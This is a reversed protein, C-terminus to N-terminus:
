FSLNVGFSFSRQTPYINYLDSSVTSPDVNAHLHSTEFVNEASFYIRLRDIGARRTLARPLTYGLTLNQLRLYAANQLYRTQPCALEYGTNRAIYAKVRPFYADRNDPSWHDLNHKQVNTWPNSYIGWFYQDDGAPYWDKKGVGQFFARFDFGNWDANIDISYPFRTSSNGIVKFDGPDYITNEGKDIVGDNDQDKFKLDGVYFVYNNNSSGVASQDAHTALEEESQFFGETELGWIEGIEQGKYYDTLTGNGNAYKTIYARSDAISFRISYHLPANGIFFQDGWSINFEWGKTKLDAANELPETVGIVNPLTRSKTLMGKTYRTYYDFSAGLRSNFMQLDVGGNVTAVKEWTLSNSVLGPPNILTPYSGDLIMGSQAANMSAIYAYESVNQNGLEGYSGRFKLTNLGIAENIKTMFREKSVVWAVSGSPFFGFRDNKPFKSTGDYRGNFEFIYRDDFIYNLRVFAGRVAWEKINEGATATGTALQTTPYSTSILGIRRSTIQNARSDEQNFGLLAGVYHKNGFMKHFDTYINYVNYDYFLTANEATPNAPGKTLIPLDPGERYPAPFMSRRFLQSNRKFTADAKINWVDKILDVQMSFSTTIDRNKTVARGGNELMSFLKGGWVWGQPDGAFTGDPNKPMLLSHNHNIEYFFEGIGNYYERFAPEDYETNAFSTNNGIKLWKLIQFDVKGRVNYRNYTDNGYELMGTQDTYEASLYYSSRQSSQSIDASITYMPSNRYAEKLWNTRGFYAWKSPDAPYKEYPSLSPNESHKKALEVMEPSFVPNYTPKGADNKMLVVTYPDTVIDNAINRGLTRIAANANVNVSIKESKGKKTTVLIVGFAARAGYVAASSADKLVSINDIDNPNMRALEDMSTPVNDVLVLPSGGNISTYGRVNLSPTTKASGNSVTVNLNPVVGQLGQGVSVLPRDELKKASVADVAGSLNAKKQSGYGVVVVEDLRKHDEYLTLRMNERAHLELTKYGMFSVRLPTDYKIDSLEFKGELDTVQGTGDEVILVNVGVLPEGLEDVVLGKVTINRQKKLNKKDNSNESIERRNDNPTYCSDGEGELRSKQENDQAYLPVWALIMIVTLSGIRRRCWKRICQKEVDSM